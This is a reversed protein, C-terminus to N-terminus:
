PDILCSKLMQVQISLVIAPVNKQVVSDVVVSSNISRALWGFSQGRQVVM